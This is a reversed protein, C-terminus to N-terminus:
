FYFRTLPQKPKSSVPTNHKQYADQLALAIVTCHPVFSKLDITLSNPM